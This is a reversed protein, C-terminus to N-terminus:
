RRLTTLITEAIRHHALPNPHMDFVVSDKGVKDWLVYNTYEAPHRLAARLASDANVFTTRPYKRTNFVDRFRSLDYRERLRAERDPKDSFMGLNVVVLRSGHQHCLEAVRDYAFREICANDQVPRPALGLNLKTEVWAFKLGDVAIMSLGVRRIFALKDGLSPRSKKFRDADPRYSSSRFPAPHLAPGQPGKYVYPYPMFGLANPFFMFKARDALWPSFQVFVMNPRKEPILKEALQVMQALGYASTGTNLYRVNLRRAVRAPYTHEAAVYDGWTFSCGLFLALSDTPHCAPPASTTRFGLSDLRIPVRKLSKDASRYVHAGTANPIGRHGLCADAAFVRGEIGVGSKYFQYVADMRRVVGYAWSGSMALLALCGAWALTKGLSRFVEGSWWRRYTLELLGVLWFLVGLTDFFRRVVDADPRLAQWRPHAFLRNVGDPLWYLVCILGLLATLFVVRKM